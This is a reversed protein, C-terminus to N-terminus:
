DCTNKDMQPIAKNVIKDAEKRKAFALEIYEQMKVRDETWDRAIAYGSSINKALREPVESPIYKESGFNPHSPLFLGLIGSYSDGVKLNLAGSIEWDIHMRCKTKPGILVILVTTNALYDKQILQKIYEDNNDSDIDDYEVSKNVILDGFLRKFKEKYEQDDHHYYSIFTKRKTLNKPLSIGWSFLQNNYSFINGRLWKNGENPNPTLTSIKHGNIAKSVIWHRDKTAGDLLTGENYEFAFVNDIYNGDEGFSLKSIFFEKAM